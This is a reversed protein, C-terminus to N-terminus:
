GSVRTALWSCNQCGHVSVSTTGALHERAAVAPSESSSDSREFIARRCFTPPASAQSLVASVSTARRTYAGSTEPCFDVIALFVPDGRTPRPHDTAPPGGSRASGSALSQRSEWIRAVLATIRTGPLESSRHSAGICYESPADACQLRSCRTGVAKPCNDERRTGMHRPVAAARCRTAFTTEFSCGFTTVGQQDGSRLYSRIHAQASQIMTQAGAQEKAKTRCSLSM